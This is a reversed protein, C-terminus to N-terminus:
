TNWMRVSFVPVAYTEYNLKLPFVCFEALLTVLGCVPCYPVLNQSRDTVSMEGKEAATLDTRPCM